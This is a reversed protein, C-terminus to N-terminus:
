ADMCGHLISLAVAFPRQHPKTISADKSNTFQLDRQNENSTCRGKRATVGEKWGRQEICSAYIVGNGDAISRSAYGM